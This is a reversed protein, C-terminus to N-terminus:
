FISNLAVQVYYDAMIDLAIVAGEISGRSKLWVTGNPAYINAQVAHRIGIIVAKHAANEDVGNVFFIMDRASLEPDNAAVIKPNVGTTLTGNIIVVSPAEFRVKVHNKLEFNEFHYIGGTLVLTGKTKVLLDKYAGADLNMTSQTAVEVDDTGPAPTPFEPLVVDLPLELPTVEEGRVTGGRNVLENYYIDDVSTGTKLGIRNAYLDVGDELYVNKGTSFEETCELQPDESVGTIGVNGKNVRAKTRMHISNTALLAFTSVFRPGINVTYDEVEGYYFIDCATPYSGWKMAVRMRTNCVVEPLVSTGTVPANGHGAFVEEGEDTFDGDVNFDIWVKWYEDYAGGPHVPTLTVDLTESATFEGVIATFDSYQSPGSTNALTGIEVSGIYEDSQLAGLATCYVIPPPEAYTTFSADDTEATNGAGDTSAVAFHYTTGATLGTLELSHSFVLGDASETSGYSTSTGYEVVSDAPESTTWTVVAGVDTYNVNLNNIVPATDDDGGIKFSGIRTQWRTGTALYYETTYWFTEDDSPDITMASYDGWRSTFLQSGSGEVISAEGEGLQNLPQDALRGAYRIAPYTDTSSVSYGLAINGDKDAGVSGMWRHNNDPAYTGQQYIAPSGNEFRLEYWRMVRRNNYEALHCLYAAGHSDFNRFMATNMLRGYLSDLQQSVDRQPVRSGSLGFAATPLITPGTWATNAPDDWDVDYAWVYLADQSTGGYEDADMSFMYNPADADPALSGKANAPLLSFADGNAIAMSQVNLTGEYIEPAQLAWVKCHQYGGTFSFMNATIYIGGNWIGCKPYDNMLTEDAHLAYQYWAGTPDSTQSVAISYYSGQDQTPAWAFDLIFWRQAYQDYLIIPDGNNETDSPTGTIGEGEFFEDFHAVSVMEGTEKDFIAISTNVGQVYYNEGVDGVPDPPWGSGHEFSNMGAFNAITSDMAMARRSMKKNGFTTQVVPDNTDSKKVFPRNREFNLVPRARNPQKRAQRQKVADKWHRVTGKLTTFKAEKQVNVSDTQKKETASFLAFSSVLTFVLFMLCIRRLSM